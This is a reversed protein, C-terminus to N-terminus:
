KQKLRELEAQYDPCKTFDTRCYVTVNLCSDIFPCRKGEYMDKKEIEFLVKEERVVYWKGDIYEIKDTPWLDWEPPTSTEYEVLYAELGNAVSPIGINFVAKRKDLHKIIGAFVGGRLANRTGIFEFYLEDDLIARYINRRCTVYTAIKPRKPPMIIECYAVDNVPETCMEAIKEMIFLEAIDMFVREKTEKGYARILYKARM